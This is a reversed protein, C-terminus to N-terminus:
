EFSEACAGLTVTIDASASRLSGDPLEAVALVTQSRGLRLRIVAEARAARPGFRIEAALAHPNGPAILVIRRAMAGGPAPDAAVAVQVSGGNEAIVPIKLQVNGPVPVRDGFLARLIEAKAAEAAAAQSASQAAVPSVLGRCAAALAAAGVLVERRRIGAM